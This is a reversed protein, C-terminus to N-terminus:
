RWWGTVVVLLPFHTLVFFLLRSPGPEHSRSLALAWSPIVALLQLALGPVFVVVPLGIFLVVVAASYLGVLAVGMARAYHGYDQGLRPNHLASAAGWVALGTGRLLDGAGVPFHFPMAPTATGQENM